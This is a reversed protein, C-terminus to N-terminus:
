EFNNHTIGLGETLGNVMIVFPVLLDGTIMGAAFWGNYLLSASFLVILVIFSFVYNLVSKKAAAQANSRALLQMIVDALSGFRLIGFIAGALLGALALWRQDVMLIDALSLIGVLFLVRKAIFKEINSKLFLRGMKYVILCKGHLIYYKVGFIFSTCM